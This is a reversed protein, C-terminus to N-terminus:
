FPVQQSLLGTAPGRGSVARCFDFADMTIHEGGGGWSGGAPGSLSLTYPRRHRAAWERVIDDVIVGEHAPTAQIQIGTARSIDLRHMFSDRTLVIDFLFGFTWREQASGVTQTGPMTRSRILAPMKRRLRAAKPGIARMATVVEAPSQRGLEPLTAIMQAMGLMHGAVARVDWAPCDTPLMWQGPTVSEFLVIARAYETAASTMAAQRELARARPREIPRAATKTTM